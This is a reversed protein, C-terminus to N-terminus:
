DPRNKLHRKFFEITPANIAALLKPDRKYDHPAEFELYQKPEPALDAMAKVGKV